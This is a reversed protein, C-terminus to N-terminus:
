TTAMRNRVASVDILIDPGKERDVSQHAFFYDIYTSNKVFSAWEEDSMTEPSPNELTKEYVLITAEAIAPLEQHDFVHASAGQSLNARFGQSARMYADVFRGNCVIARISTYQEQHAIVQRTDIFEQVLAVCEEFDYEQRDALEELTCPM